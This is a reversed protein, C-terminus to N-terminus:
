KRERLKRVAEDMDAQTIIQPAPGSLEARHQPPTLIEELDRELRSGGYLGRKMKPMRDMLAALMAERETM